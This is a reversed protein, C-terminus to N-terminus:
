IAFSSFSCFEGAIKNLYSVEVIICYNSFIVGTRFIAATAAFNRSAAVFSPRRATSHLLSLQFSKYSSLRHEKKILEPLAPANNIGTNLCSLTRSNSANKKTKNHM